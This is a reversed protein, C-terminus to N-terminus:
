EKSSNLRRQAMIGGVVALAALIVLIIMMVNVSDSTKAQEGLVKGDDGAVDDPNEFDPLVQTPNLVPIIDEQGEQGAVDSKKNTAVLDLVGDDGDSAAIITVEYGGNGDATANENITLSSADYDKHATTETLTYAGPTLYPWTAEGNVDTTASARVTPDDKSTLLFEVGELKISADSVDQKTLTLSGYLPENVVVPKTIKKNTAVYSVDRTEDTNGITIDYSNNDIDKTLGADNITFSSVIYSSSYDNNGDVEKLTYAGPTLNSWDVKGDQGTVETSVANGDNDTLLFTAGELPTTTGEEYKELTLSGPVITDQEVPLKANSATLELKNTYHNVSGSVIIEIEYSGTGIVTGNITFSAPDYGEPVTTESLNYKGVPIDSKSYKGNGDNNLNYTGAKGTLTFSANSLLSGDDADVKTLEFSGKPTGLPDMQVNNLNVNGNGNNSYSGWDDNGCVTCTFTGCSDDIKWVDKGDSNTGSNYLEVNIKDSIVSQSKSSYVSTSGDGKYGHGCHFSVSGAEGAQSVVPIMAVILAILLIITISRKNIITNM